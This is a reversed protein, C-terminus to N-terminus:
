HTVSSSRGSRCGKQEHRESITRGMVELLASRTLRALRAMGFFGLTVTPMILHAPRVTWSSGYGSTPLLGLNVAFVLILMLGLWFNPVSQGFLALLMLGHDIPTNVWRAAIAGIPIAMLISFLIATGALLATAPMRELVLSMAPQQQWISRGSYGVYRM